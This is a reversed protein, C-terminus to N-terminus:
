DETGGGMVDSFRFYRGEYVVDVPGPRGLRLKDVIIESAVIEGRGRRRGTQHAEIVEREREHHIILGCDAANILDKGERVLAMTPKEGKPAPNLQATLLCAFGNRIAMARLAEAIAKMELYRVPGGKAAKEKGPAVVQAHDVVVLQVPGGLRVTETAVVRQIESVSVSRGYLTKANTEDNMRGITQSLESLTEERQERPGRLDWRSRRATREVDRLYIDAAEVEMSFMVVRTGDTAARDAVQSAFATKGSGTTGAVLYLKGPELGGGLRVDLARIGTPIAGPIYGHEALRDLYRSIVRAQEQFNTRNLRGDDRAALEIALRTVEEELDDNTQNQELAALTSRLLADLRLAAHRMLSRRRLLRAVSVVSTSRPCGDMTESLWVIVVRQAQPSRALHRAVAFMDIEDAPIGQEALARIAEFAVGCRRVTFDERTVLSAAEAVLDPRHLLQGVLLGEVEENTM